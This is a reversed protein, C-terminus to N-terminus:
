CTGLFSLFDEIFYSKSKDEGRFRVSLSRNNVENNGLVCIFPIKQMVHQRIKYSIKENRLDLNVRVNNKKFIEELEKAYSVQDDTITLICIQFPSLWYPLAGAHNEILIGIFRELSGLIARHLMVPHEKTNEANIYSAGLRQPMMFDVQITGCQWSRGISDKLHYEIKPGYFAGEGPLEEWSIDSKQLANRLANESSDWLKDDGLRKEPRLGIKIDIKNFTFKEYVKIAQVHFKLVEEEIQNKTCFIHGDDQTFGRVRFTGHLAGSPENRHCSGFEGYRIPLDKYSRLESKYVQVHGPCNMPKLAFQKEDDGTVFMNESFNDWHGSQKWLNIDLIQPCKVEQYGNDIYLNRMYNEIIQWIKYGKPHWFIMGPSEERFHFLNQFAGIKRHDRKEAEEIKLLHNDLDEKSLWATGYIRQLMQNKSDGRWYAGSIKMLKFFRLFKTNPVHPGRCLDLFIDKKYFSLNESEPIDNIIEVKYNEGISKFYNQMSNRDMVGRTLNINQKAIKHMEKEIKHLDDSSFPKERFYDYYFGDEIVPGITVQTDPYINKVAHAMLHATSHRVIELSEQDEDTLLKVKSDVEILFDTDVLADNVNGCITRKALSPSISKALDIVKIPNNFSKKKNDPLTILPM